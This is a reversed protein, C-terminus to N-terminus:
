SWIGIKKEGREDDQDEAADNRTHAYLWEELSTKVWADFIRDEIEMRAEDDLEPSRVQEVWYLHYSDLVRFPGLVHSGGDSFVQCQVDGPLEGRKVWGLYGCKSRSAEDISHRKALGFFDAGEKIQAALESAAEANKVVIRYLEARAFELKNLAFFRDVKDAVIQQKFSDVMVETTALNELDDDSLGNTKLWTKTTHEDYLDHRLRFRNIAARIEEPDAEVEQEEFHTRAAVAIVIDLLSSEHGNFQLLNLLDKLSANQEIFKFAAPDLKFM